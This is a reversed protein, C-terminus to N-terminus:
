KIFFTSNYYKLSVSVKYFYYTRFLYENFCTIIRELASILADIYLFELFCFRDSMRCLLEFKHKFSEIKNSYILRSDIVSSLVSL